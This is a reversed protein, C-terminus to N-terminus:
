LLKSALCITWLSWVCQLKYFFISHPILTQFVLGHIWLFICVLCGVYHKSIAHFIGARTVDTEFSSNFLSVLLCMLGSLPIPLVINGRHYFSQDGSMRAVTVVTWCDTTWHLYFAWSVIHMQKVEHWRFGARLPEYQVVAIFSMLNATDSLQRSAWLYLTWLLCLVPWICYVACKSYLSTM